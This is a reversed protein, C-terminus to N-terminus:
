RYLDTMSHLRTAHQHVVQLFSQMSGNGSDTSGGGQHSSTRNSAASTPSQLNPDAHPHAGQKPLQMPPARTPERQKHSSTRAAALHAALKDAMGGAPILPDFQHPHLSKPISLHPLSVLSSMDNFDHVRMKSLCSESLMPMESILSLLSGPWRVLLTSTQLLKDVIPKPECPCGQPRLQCM